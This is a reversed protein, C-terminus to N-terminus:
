FSGDLNYTHSHDEQSQRLSLEGMSLEHMNDLSKGVREQEYDFREL